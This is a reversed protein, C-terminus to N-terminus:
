RPARDLAREVGALLRDLAPGVQQRHQALGADDVGAAVRQGHQQRPDDARQAAGLRRRELVVGGRADGVRLVGRAGVAVARVEGDGAGPELLAPEDRLELLEAVRHEDDAVRRRQLDVDVGVVRVGRRRQEGVSPM